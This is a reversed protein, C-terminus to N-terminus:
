GQDHRAPLCEPAGPLAANRFTYTSPRHERHFVGGYWRAGGRTQQRLTTRQETMGAFSGVATVEFTAVLPAIRWHRLAQLGDGRDQHMAPAGAM